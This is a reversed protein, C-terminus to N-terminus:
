KRLMMLALLGAGALMLPSFGGIPSLVPATPRPPPPPPPPPPEPVPEPKEVIPVPMFASGAASIASAPTFAQGTKRAEQYKSAIQGVARGITELFGLSGLTGYGIETCDNQMSDGFADSAPVRAQPSLWPASGYGFGFDPYLERSGRAPQDFPDIPTGPFESRSPTPVFSGAEGGPLPADWEEMAIVGGAGTDSYAVQDPVGPPLAFGQAVYEFSPGPLKSYRSAPLSDERLNASARTSSARPASVPRVDANNVIRSEAFPQYRGHDLVAERFFDSPTGGYYVPAGRKVNHASPPIEQPFDGLGDVETTRPRRRARPRRAYRKPKPRAMRSEEHTELLPFKGSPDRGIPWDKKTLEIPQWGERPHQVELWIHRYHDPPFGGVRYRTPYGATELMASALLVHDDCDGAASGAEIDALMRRPEIFLELGKPAYPDRLYRIGRDVYDVLEAIEGSHDKEDLHHVLAAVKQRFRPDRKAREVMARIRRTKIRLGPAGGPISELTAFM